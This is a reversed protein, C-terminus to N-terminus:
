AGASSRSSASKHPMSREIVTSRLADPLPFHQALGSTDSTNVHPSQRPQVGTALLGFHERGPPLRLELRSDESVPVPQRLPQSEFQCVVKYGILLGDSCTLCVNGPFSSVSRTAREIDLDHGVSMGLIARCLREQIVRELMSVPM